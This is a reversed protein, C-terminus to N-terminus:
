AEVKEFRVLWGENLSQGSEFRECADGHDEMWGAIGCVELGLVRGKDADSEPTARLLECPRADATYAWPMKDKGYGDVFLTVFKVVFKEQRTRTESHLRRSPTVRLHSSWVRPWHALLCPEETIGTANDVTAFDRLVSTCLGSTSTDESSCLTIDGYGINTYTGAYESLSNVGWAVCNNTKFQESKRSHITRHGSTCDINFPQLLLCTLCHSTCNM